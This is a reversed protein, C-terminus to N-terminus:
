EVFNDKLKREYNAIYDRYMDNSVLYAESGALLQQKAYSISYSDDYDQPPTGVLVGEDVLWLLYDIDDPLQEKDKLIKM